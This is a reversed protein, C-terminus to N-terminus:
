IRRWKGNGNLVGPNYFKYIANGNALVVILGMASGPMVAGMPSCGLVEIVFTSNFRQLYGNIMQRQLNGNCLNTYVNLSSTFDTAFGPVLAAFAPTNSFPPLTTIDQNTGSSTASMAIAWAGSGALAICARSEITDASQYHFPVAVTQSYPVTAPNPLVTPVALLNTAVTQIQADSLAADGYALTLPTATTWNGWNDLAVDGRAL